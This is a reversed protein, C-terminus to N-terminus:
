EAKDPLAQFLPLCDLFFIKAFKGLTLADLISLTGAQTMPFIAAILMQM